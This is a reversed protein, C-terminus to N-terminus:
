TQPKATNEGEIAIFGTLTYSVIEEQLQTPSQSFYLKDIHAGLKSM